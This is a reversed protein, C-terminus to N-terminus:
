PWGTLKRIIQVAWKALLIALTVYIALTMDMRWEAAYDALLFYLEAM